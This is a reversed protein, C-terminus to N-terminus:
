HDGAEIGLAVCNSCTRIPKLSSHWCTETTEGNTTFWRFIEAVSLTGHRREAGSSATM